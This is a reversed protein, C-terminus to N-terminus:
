ANIGKKEALKLRKRLTNVTIGAAEAAHTFNYRYKRFVNVAHLCLLDDQNDPYLAAPAIGDRRARLGEILKKNFREHEELIMAFDLKAYDGDDGLSDCLAKAQKLISQLERVNGPYDYNGLASIQRKTPSCGTMNRWYHKVFLPIDEKRNRLPELRM